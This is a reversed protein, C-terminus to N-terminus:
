LGMRPGYPQHPFLFAPQINGADLKTEDWRLDNRTPLEYDEYDGLYGRNKACGPVAAYMPVEMNTYIDDDPNPKFDFRGNTKDKKADRLSGRKLGNNPRRQNNNAGNRNDSDEDSDSDDSDSDDSDSASDNNMGESIMITRYHPVPSVENMGTPYFYSESTSAARCKCISMILVLVVVILAAAIAVIALERDEAVDSPQAM